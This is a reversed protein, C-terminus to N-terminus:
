GTAAVHPDGEDVIPERSHTTTLAAESPDRPQEGFGLDERQEVDGTRRRAGDLGERDM